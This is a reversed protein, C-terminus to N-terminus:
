PSDVCEQGLCLRGVSDHDCIQHYDLDSTINNLKPKVTIVPFHHM